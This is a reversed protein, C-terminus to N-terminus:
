DDPLNAFAEPEIKRLANWATVQFDSEEDNLAARLLPVASRAAPGIRALEWAASARVNKDKLGQVLVQLYVESKGDIAYLARAAKMRLWGFQIDPNKLEETLAPIADRAVPGLDHLADMATGVLWDRRKLAEILKPIADNAAPGMKGLASAAALVLSRRQDDEEPAPWLSVAGEATKKVLSRPQVSPLAQILAPVASKAAPGLRGLAAAAQPGVIDDGNKLLEILIDIGRRSQPDVKSLAEAAELRVAPSKDHLAAALAEKAGPSHGSIKGLAGAAAARAVSNREERLAAVLAPAVSEDGGILSLTQIAAERALPHPEEKIAAIMVPVAARAPPGIQALAQAAAIRVDASKDQRFAAILADIVQGARPSVKVLTRAASARADLREDSRLTQLLAVVVRDDGAGVRGLLWIVSGRTYDRPDAVSELLVPITQKIPPTRRALEKAATYRVLKDEDKLAQLLTQTVASDNKISALTTVANWRVQPDPDAALELLKALAVKRNKKVVQGLLKLAGLKLMIDQSRLNEELVTLIEDPNQHLQWLGEAAGLRVDPIGQKLAIRFADEANDGGLRGLALAVSGQSAPDSDKKVITVLTDELARRNDASLGTTATGIDVPTSECALLTLSSTPIARPDWDILSLALLAQQHVLKDKDKLLDLLVPVAATGGERLKKGVDGQAGISPDQKFAAAWFSTPRHQFFAEGNWSGKVWYNIAPVVYFVSLGALILFGILILLRRKM